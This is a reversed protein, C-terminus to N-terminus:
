EPGTEGCHKRQTRHGKQQHRASRASFAGSRGGCLRRLTSPAGSIEERHIAKQGALDPPETALDRVHRRPLRDLGRGTVTLDPAALVDGEVAGVVGGGELHPQGEGLAAVGRRLGIDPLDELLSQPHRGVVLGGGGPVPAGGVAAVRARGDVETLEVLLPEANGLVRTLGEAPVALRRPEGVQGETDDRGGACCLDLPEAGLHAPELPLQVGLLRLQVAGLAVEIPEALTHVLAAPLHVRLAARERAEPLLEVGGPLALLCRRSAEAVELLRHGGALGLERHAVLLDRIEPGGERAGLGGGRGLLGLQVLELM